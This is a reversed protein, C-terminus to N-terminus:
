ESKNLSEHPYGLEVISEYIQKTDKKRFGFVIYEPYSPKRHYIRIANHYFVHEPKYTIKEIEEKKFNYVKKIPRKTLEIIKESVSLTAHWALGTESFVSLGTWKLNEETMELEGYKRM